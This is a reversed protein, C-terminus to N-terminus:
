NQLLKKKQGDYDFVDILGSDLLSKLKDLEDAVSFPPSGNKLMKEKQGDYEFVNIAGRDHLSKLKILEDTLTIPACRNNWKQGCDTSESPSCPEIECSYIAREIQVSYTTWDDGKLLFVIEPRGTFSSAINKIEKLTMRRFNARRVPNGVTSNGLYIFLFSGGPASGNGVKVIDGIHYTIGNSATYQQQANAQRVDMLVWLSVFLFIIKKMEM